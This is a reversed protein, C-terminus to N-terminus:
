IQPIDTAIKLLNKRNKSDPYIMSIHMSNRIIASPLTTWHRLPDMKPCPPSIECQHSLASSLRVYNGGRTQASTSTSVYKTTVSLSKAKCCPCEFYPACGRSTSVEAFYKPCLACSCSGLTFFTFETADVHGCAVCVSPNSFGASNSSRKHRKSLNSNMIKIFSICALTSVLTNTPRVCEFCFLQLSFLPNDSM